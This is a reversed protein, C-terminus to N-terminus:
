SGWYENDANTGINRFSNTVTDEMLGTNNIGKLSNEQTSSRTKVSKYFNAPTATTYQDGVDDTAQKLRGQIGRKIYTQLTLLAAIIIVMLIAYELVSQGRRTKLM